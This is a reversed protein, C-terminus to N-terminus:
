DSKPKQAHTEISIEEPLRKSMGPVERPKYEIMDSSSITVFIRGGGAFTRILVPQNYQNQFVFDPGGWSVTADRGPPVYPVHRSHSYRKVIKLGARDIANFLTSSVQCIGGGVGESLEGRVIVPAPLYGKKLTRMGVTQNFSFTEGPFIVTNNIAKAALAINHSRNKNGANFYTVYHGIPKDRLPALLESDIRPYIAKRPVEIASPGSGFFYAYFEETFRSRDLKYGIREPVIEGRNGIVANQPPQDIQRELRDLLKEFKDMDILPLAPVQFDARNVSEVVQEKHKISLSDPADTRLLMLAAAMAM